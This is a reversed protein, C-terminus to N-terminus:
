KPWMFNDDEDLRVEWQISEVVGDRFWFNMDWAECYFLGDEGEEEGWNVRKKRLHKRLQDPSFGIVKEGKLKAEPSTAEMYKLRWDCEEEFHCAIGVAPFYWSEITEGEAHKTEEVHGPEGHIATVQEKSMGFLLDDIGIRPKINM